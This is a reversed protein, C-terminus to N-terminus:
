NNNCPNELNHNPYETGDITVCRIPNQGGQQAEDIQKRFKTGPEFTKTITEVTDENSKFTVTAEGEGDTNLEAGGSGTYRVPEQSSSNGGGANNGNGVCSVTFSREVTESGDSLVVDISDGSVTVTVSVEAEESPTCDVAAEVEGTDGTEINEPLEERSEPSLSIKENDSSLEVDTVNISQEFRNEVSIVSIQSTNPNVDTKDESEYGVFANEDNAVNVSVGRDATTSTFGLTGSVLLLSAVIALGLGATRLTNM